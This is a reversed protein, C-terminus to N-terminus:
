SWPFVSKVMDGVFPLASDAATFPSMYEGAYPQIGLSDMGPVILGKSASLLGVLGIMALRGNNVEALLAKEKREPSLKKTFGVPDWLDVPVPHPYRGKFSPYYGPKGGRVYHKQGDAELAASNEGHMELFGIVLLIQLKGATPLADWQDGPSGAASIDAFSIKPLDLGMFPIPGQIDWPFFKHNAHVCYGVFGAMAVRGHKIEAHRWWGVTEPTTAENIVNLPDWFGLTPNLKLALEKMGEENCPETSTDWGEGSPATLPPGAASCGYTGDTIKALNSQTMASCMAAGKLKADPEAAVIASIDVSSSYKALAGEPISSADAVIRSTRAPVTSGLLASATASGIVVSSLM